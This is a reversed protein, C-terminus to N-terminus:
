CTDQLGSLYQTEMKQSRCCLWSCAAVQVLCGLLDRAALRLRSWSPCLGHRPGCSRGCPHSRRILSAVCLCLSDRAHASAQKLGQSQQGHGRHKVSRFSPQPRSMRVALVALGRRGGPHLDLSCVTHERQSPFYCKEVGCTITTVNLADLCPARLEAPVRQIHRGDHAADLLAVEWRLTFALTPKDPFLVPGMRPTPERLPAVSPPKGLLQPHAKSHLMQQFSWRKECGQRRLLRRVQVGFDDSEIAM